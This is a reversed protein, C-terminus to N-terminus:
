ARVDSPSSPPAASGQRPSPLRLRSTRYVLGAPIRAVHGSFDVGRWVAVTLLRGRKMRVPDAAVVIGRDRETWAVRDGTDLPVTM